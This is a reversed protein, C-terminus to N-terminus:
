PTEMQRAGPGRGESGIGRRPRPVPQGHIRLYDDMNSLLGGCPAAGGRHDSRDHQVLIKTRTWASTNTSRLSMTVSGTHLGENRWRAITKDWWMAWEWKPVRDVPQLNMLARFREVHNM